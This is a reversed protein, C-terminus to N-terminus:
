GQIIALAQLARNSELRPAPAFVTDYDIGKRICGSHGQVVARAKFKEFQGNKTKVTLIVRMGVIKKAPIIEM